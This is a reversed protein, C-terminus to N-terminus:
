LFEDAIKNPSSSLVSIQCHPQLLFESCFSLNGWLRRKGVAVGRLDMGWGRGTRTGARVCGAQAFRDKADMHVVAEPLVFPQRLM